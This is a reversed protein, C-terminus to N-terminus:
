RRCRRTLKGKSELTQVISNFRDNVDKLKADKAFLKDLAEKAKQKVGTQKKANPDSDEELRSIREYLKQTKSEPGAIDGAVFVSAGGREIFEQKQAQLKQLEDSEKKDLKPKASLEALRLEKAEGWLESSVGKVGEIESAASEYRFDSIKKLQEYELKEQDNLERQKVAPITFENGEDDVVTEEERGNLLSNLEFLRVRQANTMVPPVFQIKKGPSIRLLNKLEGIAKKSSEKTANEMPTVAWGKTRSFTVRVNNDSEIRSIGDNIRIMEDRQEADSKQKAEEITQGYDGKQTAVNIVNTAAAIREDIKKSIENSEGPQLGLEKKAKELNQREVLAVIVKARTDEDFSSPMAANARVYMEYNAMVAKRQEEPVSKQVYDIFKDRNNVAYLVSGAYISSNQLASYSNAAVSTLGGAAAGLTVAEMAELLKVKDDLTSGTYANFLANAGKEALYGAGEEVFGETFSQKITENAIYKAVDARSVGDKIQSVAERFINSKVGPVFPGLEIMETGAEIMTMTNALWEAPSGLYGDGEGFQKLAERYNDEFTAMYSAGATGLAGAARASGLVSALRASGSVAGGSLGIFASTTLTSVIKPVITSPSALQIDGNKDRSYMPLNQVEPTRFDMQESIDSMYEAFPTAFEGPIVRGGLALTNTAFKIAARAMPDTVNEVISDLNKGYGVLTNEDMIGEPVPSYGFAERVANIGGIANRNLARAADAYMGEGRAVRANRINAAKQRELNEAYKPDLIEQRRSDVITKLAWDKAAIIEDQEEAVADGYVSYEEAAQKLESAKQNYQDFVDKYQGLQGVIQNYQQRYSERENFLPSITQKYAENRKNWENVRQNYEDYDVKGGENALAQIAELAKYESDLWNSENDYKKIESDIQSMKGAIPASQQAVRQTLEDNPLKSSLDSLEFQLSNIKSELQAAKKGEPTDPAADLASAREAVQELVHNAIERDRETEDRWTWNGKEIERQVNELSFKQTKTPRQEYSAIAAAKQPDPKITAMLQMTTMPQEPAQPKLEKEAVEPRVPGLGASLAMQQAEQEKQKKAQSFTKDTEGSLAISAKAQKIQKTLSDIDAKLKQPDERADKAKPLVFERSPSQYYIASSTVFDLRKQKEQLQGELEKVKQQRASPQQGAGTASPSASPGGL